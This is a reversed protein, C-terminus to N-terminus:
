IVIHPHAEKESLRRLTSYIALLVIVAMITITVYSLWDIPVHYDAVHTDISFVSFGTKLQELIIDM